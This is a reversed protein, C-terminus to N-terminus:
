IQSIIWSWAFGARTREFSKSTWFECWANEIKDKGITRFDEKCGMIRILLIEWAKFKRLFRITCISHNDIDNRVIQKEM